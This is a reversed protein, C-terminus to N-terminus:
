TRTYCGMDGLFIGHLPEIATSVVGSGVPAESVEDSHWDCHADAAADDEEAGREDEDEARSEAGHCLVVFRMERRAHDETECGSLALSEHGHDGLYVGRWLRCVGQCVDFLQDNFM